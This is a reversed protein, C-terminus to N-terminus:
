FAEAKPNNFFQIKHYICNSIQHIHCFTRMSSLSRQQFLLFLKNLAIDGKGNKFHELPSRICNCLLFPKNPFSDLQFKQVQVM